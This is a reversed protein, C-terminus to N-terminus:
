IFFDETNGKFFTKSLLILYDAFERGIYLNANKRHSLISSLPITFMFIFFPPSLMIQELQYVIVKTM